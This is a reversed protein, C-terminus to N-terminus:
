VAELNRPMVDINKSVRQWAESSNPPIREDIAQVVTEKLAEHVNKKNGCSRASIQLVVRLNM